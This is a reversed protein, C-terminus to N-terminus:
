FVKYRSFSEKNNRISSDYRSKMYIPGRLLYIQFNKEQFSIISKLDLLDILNVNNLEESAPSKINKFLDQYEAYRMGTEFLDNSKFLKSNLPYRLKSLDNITTKFNSSVLLSLEQWNEIGRTKIMLVLDEYISKNNEIIMRHRENKADFQILEYYSKIFRLQSDKLNRKLISEKFLNLFNLKLNEYINEFDDFRKQTLFVDVFPSFNQKDYLVVTDNFEDNSLQIKLDNEFISKTNFSVKGLNNTKGNQIFKNGVWISVVCNEVPKSNLSNFVRIVLTNKTSDPVLYFTAKALPLPLPSEKTLTLYKEKTTVIRYNGSGVPNEFIIEEYFKGNASSFIIPFGEIEILIKAKEIPNLNEADLVM